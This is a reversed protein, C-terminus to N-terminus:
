ARRRGGRDRGRWRRQRAQVPPHLPPFSPLPAPRADPTPAARCSGAPPQRATGALHGGGGMGRLWPGAQRAWAGGGGRRVLVGLAPSNAPAAAGGLGMADAVAVAGTFDGGGGYAGPGPAHILHTDEFSTGGLMSHDLHAVPGHGAGATAGGGGAAAVAAAAAAHLAPNAGGGRPPPAPHRATVKLV